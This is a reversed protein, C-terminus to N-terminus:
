EKPNTTSGTNGRHLIIVCSAGHAGQAGREGSRGEEPTTTSSSSGRKERGKHLCLCLYEQSAIYVGHHTHKSKDNPDRKETGTGSGSGTDVATAKGDIEETARVMNHPGFELRWSKKKGDHQCTVVNDKIMVQTFGKGEMKKGDIEAYTVTWDGDLKVMPPSQESGKERPQKTDKDQGVLPVFLVVSVLFAHM